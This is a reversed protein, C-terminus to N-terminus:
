IGGALAHQDRQQHALHGAAVLEAQLLGAQVLRHAEDGGGVFLRLLDNIQVAVIGLEHLAQLVAHHFLLDDVPDGFARRVGVLRDAELFRDALLGPALGYRSGMSWRVLARLRTGITTSCVLRPSRAYSM